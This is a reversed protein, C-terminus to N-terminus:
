KYIFINYLLFIYVRQLINKFNPNKVVMDNAPFLKKGRSEIDPKVNNVYNNIKDVIEKGMPILGSLSIQEKLRNYQGELIIIRM